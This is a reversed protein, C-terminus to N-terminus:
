KRSAEAWEVATRGALDCVSARLRYNGPKDLTFDVEVSSSEGESAIRLEPWDWHLYRYDYEEPGYLEWCVLANEYVGDKGAGMTYYVQSSGERIEARATYQGSGRDNVEVVLSPPNGAPRAPIRPDALRSVETGEVVEVSGDDVVRVVERYGSTEIGELDWILDFAIGLRLCREIETFFSRMVERYTIGRRNKRELNLEELGWLLGRGM